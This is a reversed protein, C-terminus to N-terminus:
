FRNSALVNEKDARTSPRGKSFAALDREMQQKEAKLTQVEQQLKQM